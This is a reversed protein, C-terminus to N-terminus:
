LRPSSRDLSLSPFRFTEVSAWTRGVSVISPKETESTEFSKGATISLIEGGGRLAVVPM